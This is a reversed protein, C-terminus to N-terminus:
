LFLESLFLFKCFIYEGPWGLHLHTQKKMLVSKSFHLMVDGTWWHIRQLSHTGDSHLKLCSIFVDCYDVLLTHTYQQLTTCRSYMAEETFASLSVPEWDTVSVKQCTETCCANIVHSNRSKLVTQTAAQCLYGNKSLTNVSKYTLTTFYCGWVNNFICFFM